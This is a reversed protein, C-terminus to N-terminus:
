RALSEVQSEPYSPRALGSRLLGAHVAFDPDHQEMFTSTISCGGFVLRASGPSFLPDVLSQSTKKFLGSPFPPPVVASIVRIRCESGAVTLRTSCRTGPHGEPRQNKQVRHPPGAGQDDAVPAYAPLQVPM